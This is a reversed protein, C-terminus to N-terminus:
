LESVAATEETEAAESTEAKSEGLGAITTESAEVASVAATTTGGSIILAETQRTAETEDILQEKECATLLVAALLIAGMFNKKM